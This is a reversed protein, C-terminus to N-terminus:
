YSNGSSPVTTNPREALQDISPAPRHSYIVIEGPRLFRRCQAVQQLHFEVHLTTADSSRLQSGLQLRDAIEKSVIINTNPETELRTRVRALISEGSNDELAGGIEIIPQELYYVWSPELGGLCLWQNAPQFTQVRVITDIDSRYHSALSTGIGFLTIQFVAAGALWRAPTLETNFRDCTLGLACFIALAIGGAGAIGVLPMHQQRAIIIMAVAVAMGVFVGLVGATRRWYAHPIVKALRFDRLFGGILLAAGPYCPTIYSPLKTSAITFAGLYVAIWVMGLTAAPRHFRLAASSWIAIPILWLSWPFTGVVFAVPYYFVSGSHGEMSSVARGFNHNLFFGRLFAGETAIGVEIYWPASILIAVATGPLSRLSVIAQGGVRAVWAFNAVIALWVRQLHRIGQPNIADADFAQFGRKSWHSGNETTSFSSQNLIWWAHLVIMPLVFGVPGKALMALGLSSYGLLALPWRVPVLTLSKGLAANDRRAFSNGDAADFHLSGIVLAAIGLTSFAILCSDPTAARAAMVFLVCTALAAASWFGASSVWRYDGALRSALFAVTIVTILGLVASPLRASWESKGIISYATMQMWYLLVPKHDRLQNNFTPVVWDGRALMEEACRANRPEDRDWLRASGLGTFLVASALAFLAIARYYKPFFRDSLM